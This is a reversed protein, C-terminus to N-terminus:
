RLVVSALASRGCRARACCCNIGLGRATFEKQGDGKNMQNNQVNKASFIVFFYRNQVCQKRHLFIQSVQSTVTSHFNDLSVNRNLVYIFFTHSQRILTLRTNQRTSLLILQSGSLYNALSNLSDFHQM